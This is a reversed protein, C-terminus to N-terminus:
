NKLKKLLSKTSEDHNEIKGSEIETLLKSALVKGLEVGWQDFSFINWIIGKTFIVHEYLAILMGFSEPSLQELLISNTPKSGDFVKFASVKNIEEASTGNIKLDNVVDEINKGLMLAEMQGVYNSMLKNHSDTNGHLCKRFGIFDCPILKNSQHILQFFAHQTNTGTGGWIINGTNYEIKNGSRDRNKGNSEMMAQQLYSPLFCLSENYPIVAQTEANLFNSNWIGILALCVPINKEFSANKFHNDIKEAGKLFKEFNEYGVSLAISLGVSGWMSFRGGIFDYMSFILDKNVGFNEVANLNSSVACFHNSIENTNLSNVIWEKAINANSLTEQTTFTKSVIIFFTTEPNLKKLIDATHDGDVNSIFHINLQNKYFKLAEVTMKPGLDSGGIGINVIDTYKKGTQGKLKGNTIKDCLNQIKKRDNILSQINSSFDRLATHLVSRNETENIVEGSFFNGISEKLRCEDALNLLLDFTKKDILNKSFDVDIQDFEIALYDLRNKDEKFLEKLSKKNIIDKHAILKKWANTKVPNIKPLSM